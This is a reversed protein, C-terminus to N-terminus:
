PRASGAGASGEPSESKGRLRVKAFRRGVRLRYAGPSLRASGDRVVQGDIRVAGQAILRRAEANSPLHLASRLLDLLGMTGDEGVSLPIEPADEPEEKRQIVSRFQEGAREAADRGHFREVVRFALAHKLALPDGRGARVEAAATKLDEWRGFGLLGLYDLMLTDSISMLRGYSQDPPDTIGVTNGLSKSMKERGDIGVLLAHTIVVQPPQGYDRQIERGVLLNFLQDTGGIEVDAQLAVSDYAQVLPYLLEHLAISEGAAYRKAFDDRELMRAVSYHSCLKVFDAPGMRDMWEGNYRISARGVDLISRVQDVYTAANRRVEDPELAPRTKKKGTPDGIRATFDGILFIPLHGLEQFDRLKELGMTHGLHLDPASPDMGLKVRLPRKTRISEALRVRLEAEGVLDQIGARIVALQREVERKM